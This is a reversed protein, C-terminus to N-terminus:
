EEIFEIIKKSGEEDFDFEIDTEPKNGMLISVVDDIDFEAMDPIVRFKVRKEM